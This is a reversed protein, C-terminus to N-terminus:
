RRLWISLDSDLLLVGSSILHWIADRADSVRIQGPAANTLEEIADGLPIPKDRRRLTEIALDQIAEADLLPLFVAAVAASM